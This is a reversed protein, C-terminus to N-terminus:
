RVLWSDFPEKSATSNHPNRVYKCLRSLFQGVFEEICRTDISERGLQGAMPTTITQMAQEQKLVPYPTRPHIVV